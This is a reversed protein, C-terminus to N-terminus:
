KSQTNDQSGRGYVLFLVIGSIIMMLVAYVFTLATSNANTLDETLSRVKVGLTPNIPHYLFASMDYDGLLSNINLAAVAMVTPLIAPFVVRRFTYWGKAGLNRSADELANDLSFFAAKTMRLSFPLKIVVYGILMIIMTGTLVRNFMYWHHQNYLLMLALAVLTTPLLWPIMLSYNLVGAVLTDKRKQIIRCAAVIIVSILVAALVSYVISVIFPRYNSSASLLYRYNDLSLSGFDLTRTAINKSSTFSFLVILVVPVVYIAFLVYALIHVIVNVVPNNIKQKVIRTKVKSVSMYHGRKEIQTMIYLLVMTAMGLVLSLLAALDKSNTSDAFTKIMPNITQFQTGGVLLPASMASLGTIFTLITVAFLSPLLVPLVVRRLITWQNAGMNRAAEVTQFDVARMANRLFIMHNSTCSFTMVFLVAWYGQFWNRNFSPFIRILANTLFGNSGYIFKYGSVLIIGGYLLTTMYGLRLINAGKIDFYETVLVLFIGVIGVSLSLTPGLIFSNRLSNMAKKSKMLKHIPELSFSGDALFITGLLHVIPVIICTMIFWVFLVAILARGPTLDKWFRSLKAKM